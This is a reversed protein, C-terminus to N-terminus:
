NNWPRAVLRLRGTIGPSGPAEFPIGLEIGDAYGRVYIIPWMAKEHRM